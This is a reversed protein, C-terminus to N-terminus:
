PELAWDEISHGPINRKAREKSCPVEAQLVRPENWIETFDDEEGARIRWGSERGHSHLSTLSERGVTSGIHFVMLRSLNLEYGYGRLLPQFADFDEGETFKALKHIERIADWAGERRGDEQPSERIMESMAQLEESEKRDRLLRELELSGRGEEAEKERERLERADKRQAQREEMMFTMFQESNINSMREM